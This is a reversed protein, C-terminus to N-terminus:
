EISLFGGNVKTRPRQENGGLKFFFSQLRQEYIAGHNAALVVRCQEQFSRLKRVNEGAKARNNAKSRRRLGYITGHNAALFTVRTRTLLRTFDVVYIYILTLV